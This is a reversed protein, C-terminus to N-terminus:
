FGGQATPSPVQNEESSSTHSRSHAEEMARRLNEQLEEELEQVTGQARQLAEAIDGASDLQHRKIPLVVDLLCGEDIAPYAIGANNRMIQANAFDSRLLHALVLSNIGKCRLVAFGTSCVAGALGPPVVGVARREPRVTSFLVDGAEVTKRARSPAASCNIVKPHVTCNESHVDGIEIYKFTELGMGRPDVRDTSLSAVHRVRLLGANDQTLSRQIPEPLGCHYTADWRADQASIDVVKGMRPAASGRAETLIPTLDSEGNVIKRRQSRRTLVDFGINKCVAFYVKQVGLSPEDHKKLHLISTKTSTGAVGFTVTPLSVVSLVQVSRALGKRLDGFLGRNTLVSDPVIAVLVGGPALWDVYRELFLLESDITRVPRQAWVTALKYLCLDKGQFEAGFPPNSLILKAKGSIRDTLESDPGFRVLANALHLNVAPVGFLALNSLALKIMRESKDIGVIVSSTMTRTWAPLFGEGCNTSVKAYLVRLVEALFSGVGCSPDLILGPEACRQPDVFKILDGSDLSHLGLGVMFRVVETPTLYQGLEKEETFSDALFQGFTDNLIDVCKGNRIHAIVDDSAFPRFSDVIEAAFRDESDKIRLHFDEPQLEHSLSVPLHAAFVDAVFKRLAV